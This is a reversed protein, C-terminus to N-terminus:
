FTPSVAYNEQTDDRDMTLVIVIYYNLRFRLKQVKSKWDQAEWGQTELIQISTSAPVQKRSM